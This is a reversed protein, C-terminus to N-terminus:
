LACEGGREGLFRGRKGKSELAKRGYLFSWPNRSVVLVFRRPAFIHSSDKRVSLPWSSEVMEHSERMKIQCMIAVISNCIFSKNNRPSWSKKSRGHTSSFIFVKQEDFIKAQLRLIHLLVKKKILQIILFLNLALISTNRAHAVSPVLLFM